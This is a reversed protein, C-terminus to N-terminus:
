VFRSTTYALYVGGIRFMLSLLANMSTGILSQLVMRFALMFFQFGMTFVGFGFYAIMDGFLFCVVALVAALVSFRVQVGRGYKRIVTGIAYGFALYVVSFEFMLFRALLGYLITLGVTAGVGYGVARIFRENRTLAQKNYIKLM